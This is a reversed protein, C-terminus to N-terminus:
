GTYDLVDIVQTDAARDGLRRGEDDALVIIPEILWGVYPIIGLLVMILGRLFSKGKTCPTNDKLCVVMLGTAKKGWSQGKGLGDKIISYPLPLAIYLLGAFFLMGYASEEDGWYDSLEAITVFFLIIAPLALGFVILADLIAAGFRNGLPAKSYKGPIAASQPLVQDPKSIAKGIGGGCSHCFKADVPNEKGCINCYM